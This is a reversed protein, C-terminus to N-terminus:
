LVTCIWHRTKQVGCCRLCAACVQRAVPVAKTAKQVLTDFKKAQERLRAKEEEDSPKPGSDAEGTDEDSGYGLV